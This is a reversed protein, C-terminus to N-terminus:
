DNTSNLIDELEKRIEKKTKIRYKGNDEVIVGEELLYKLSQKVAQEVEQEFLNDDMDYEGNNM